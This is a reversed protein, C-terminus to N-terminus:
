NCGREITYDPDKKKSDLRSYISEAKLYEELHQYANAINFLIEQSPVSDM